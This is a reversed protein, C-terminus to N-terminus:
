VVALVIVVGIPTALALLLALTRVDSLLGLPGASGHPTPDPAPHQRRTNKARDM